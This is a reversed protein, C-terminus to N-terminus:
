KLPKLMVRRFHVESGESQLSISGMNPQCGTVEGAKKGNITVSVRGAKSTIVCTNWQGVPRSLDRAMLKNDTKADGSPFISGATPAHLQVQIANPWIKDEKGTHILVGSNGNADKPYKWELKFEFDGYLKQTRIYGYPKGQCELVDDAGNKGEVAKWVAKPDGEASFFSWGAPFTSAKFLSKPGDVQGSDAPRSMWCLVAMMVIATM